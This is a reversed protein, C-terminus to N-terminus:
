SVSVLLLLFFCFCHNLIPSYRPPIRMGMKFSNGMESKQTKGMVLNQNKGTKIGQRELIMGM